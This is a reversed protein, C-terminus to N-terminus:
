GRGDNMVNRSLPLPVPRMVTVGPAASRLSVVTRNTAVSAASARPGAKDFLRANTMLTVLGFTGGTTAGMPSATTCGPVVTSIGNLAASRSWFGRVYVTLPIAPALM